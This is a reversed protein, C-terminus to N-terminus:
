NQYVDILLTPKYTQRITPVWKAQAVNNDEVYVPNYYTTASMKESRFVQQTSKDLTKETANTLCISSVLSLITMAYTMTSLV